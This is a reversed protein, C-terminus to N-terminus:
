EVRRLAQVVPLRAAQWAPFVGSAVTLLLAVTAGVVLTGPTVHFGPLFGGDGFGTAIPLLVAAGLGLVSGAISVVAAEVIVLGFVRRDSFGVTKMVAVESTRERQNMMMANASVLLIAFVVAMGITSMLLKVNGWMSAFGAAFAKETGTKTPASSNRFQDDITKAVTPAASPDDIKMIFWGPTVRDPEREYLYQYHFMFSDDGYEKLTPHYIGRITFTWDGPFITGQLTVNDGVKWGFARVLGEGIVAASRERLFAQKEEDAIQIEPYMKLYSEPEVAFTAFFKKGDGYKGGFWNAWTVAEVHPVSALRQAYSTPLPIVFATSNQVIMRSASSVQSGANLTTVVTRLSAFLFLALAVSAITLSTRLRHRRLNALVLPLFKM